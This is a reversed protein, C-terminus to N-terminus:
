CLSSKVLSESSAFISRRPTALGRPVVALVTRGHLGNRGYGATSHIRPLSHRIGLNRKTPRLVIYANYSQLVGLTNSSNTPTAVM